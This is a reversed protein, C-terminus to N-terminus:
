KFINYSISTFFIRGYGVPSGSGGSHPADGSMGKSAVIQNDLLNKAGLTFTLKNSLFKRILSIDVTHYPDLTGYEIM